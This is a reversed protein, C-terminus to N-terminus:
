KNLTLLAIIVDSANDSSSSNQIATDMNKKKKITKM